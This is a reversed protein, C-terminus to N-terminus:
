LDADAFLAKPGGCRVLAWQYLPEVVELTPNDRNGYAIKKITSLHVGTLASVQPWTKAGAARLQEVVFPLIYQNTM